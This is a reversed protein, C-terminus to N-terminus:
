ALNEAGASALVVSCFISSLLPTTLSSCKNSAIFAAAVAFPNLALLRVQLLQESFVSFRCLSLAFTFGFLLFVSTRLLCIAGMVGILLRFRFLYRCFSTTLGFAFTFGLFTGEYTAISCGILEICLLVSHLCVCVVIRWLTCHKSRTIRFAIM